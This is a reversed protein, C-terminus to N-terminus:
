PRHGTWFDDGERERMITDRNPLEIGDDEVQQRTADSRNFPKFFHFLFFISASLWFVVVVGLVSTLVKFQYNISAERALAAATDVDPCNTNNM